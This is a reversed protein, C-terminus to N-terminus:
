FQMWYRVNGAASMTPKFIGGVPLVWAGSNAGTSSTSADDPERGGLETAATAVIVLNVPFPFPNRFISTSVVNSGLTDAIKGSAKQITSTSGNGVDTFDNTNGGFKAGGFDTRYCTRLNQAATGDLIAVGTTNDHIHADDAYEGAWIYCTNGSSGGHAASVTATESDTVVTIKVPTNAGVEIWRGVHRSNFTGNPAKVTTGTTGSAATFTKTGLVGVGRLNGGWECGRARVRGGGDQSNIHAGSADNGTARCGLMLADWLRECNFGSGGNDKSICGADLLGDTEFATFGHGNKMDHAYCDRLTVKSGYNSSFGTATDGGDDCFVECDEFLVDTCRVQCIHFTENSSTDNGRCNKVIVNRVRVHRSRWIQIGHCVTGSAGVNAANGDITLDEIAVDYDGGDEEADMDWNTVVRNQSGTGLAAGDVLKIITQQRGAGRLTVGRRMVIGVKGFGGTANPHDNLDVSIAGAPLQVIGGGSASLDSILRNVDYLTLGPAGFVIFRGDATVFTQDPM